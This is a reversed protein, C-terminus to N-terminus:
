FFPFVIGLYFLSDKEHSFDTFYMNFLLLIYICCKLLLFHNGLM